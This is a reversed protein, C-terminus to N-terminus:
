ITTGGSMVIPIHHIILLHLKFIPNNSALIKLLNMKAKVCYIYLLFYVVVLYFLYKSFQEFAFCKEKLASSVTAMVLGALFCLAFSIFSEWIPSIIAKPLYACLVFIPIQCYIYLSFGCWIYLKEQIRNKSLQKQRVALVTKLNLWM